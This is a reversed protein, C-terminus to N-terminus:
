KKLRSNLSAIKLMFRGLMRRKTFYLYHSLFTSLPMIYVENPMKRCNLGRKERGMNDITIKTKKMFAITRLMLYMGISINVKTEDFTRLHNIIRNVISDLIRM